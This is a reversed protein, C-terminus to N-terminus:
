LVLRRVDALLGTLHVIFRAAAAGDIVRHDYSLSLPCMLRPQFAQGDWVPKMQARSVGLIAVEPANVIPTFHSGGIGGLSSISFCGGRMEDPKLKGDRAKKALDACDRAIENLGKSWVDRVVPVLLGNETDAAFGVHCYKKLILSEGDASLSSNFEPYAKMAAGVAKILFPLLTLKVGEEAGPGGAAQKRFAELETIDAEDTQTVHPVLLWNRHLNQASLKRIRALPKKEVEGFKSFDVEPQAPLGAGGAAAPPPSKLVAKVHNQVDERLIRQKPGSGKLQTLDVGLERAFRRVAPSAHPLLGPSATPQMREGQSAAPPQAEGEGRGEGRPPSPSSSASDVQADADPEASGSAASTLTCIADGQKVKDGVKLSLKGVTGAAPAPVEMTSKDSELVILTQDAEVEDGEAVLVEIVPVDEFDGIDPVKVDTSASQASPPAAGGEGRREGRPPSPPAPHASESAPAEDKEKKAPTSETKAEAKAEGAELTCILDGQKVKDGVKLSLKGITGAEPAPVEMTSKDSELVIITQDAEVTEGESVLVEIVPVDEFDGIDPVKIDKSM